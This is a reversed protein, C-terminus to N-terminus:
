TIRRYAKVTYAYLGRDMPRHTELDIWDQPSPSDARIRRVVQTEQGNFPVRGFAIEYSKGTEPSFKEGVVWQNVHPTGTDHESHMVPNEIGLEALISHLTTM